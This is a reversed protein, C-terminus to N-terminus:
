RPRRVPAAFQPTRSSTKVPLSWGKTHRVFYNVATRQGDSSPAPYIRACQIALGVGTVLYAADLRRRRRKCAVTVGRPPSISGGEDRRM